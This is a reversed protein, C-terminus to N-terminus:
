HNLNLSTQTILDRLSLQGVSQTVSYEIRDLLDNISKDSHISEINMRGTEHQRRISDFIRVLTINELSQCPLYGSDHDLQRTILRESELAHMVESLPETSINLADALAMLTWPAKNEHFHKGIYYMALLAIKEKMRNSLLSLRQDAPIKEPHQHYYAIAAGILLILWSLYIWIMFLILIAFSSYVVTYNSSNVVFSAFLWGTTEWLIGAIFAGTFASRFNVRTNPLLQYLVTFAAIVLLYPLLNGTTTFIFSFIEVHSLKGIITSSTIAATITLATLILIPGIMIVSLYETIRQVLGRYETIHWTHNFAREIKNILSIVTYILLVIGMVGLLKVDINDVFNIVQKAINVGQEGLPSLVHSLLPEIQHHLGFGKLISFTVALVPIISLLTTYVLSMARLTPLGDSLDRIVAQFIRLLKILTRQWKPLQDLEVEWLVAKIKNKLQNIPM